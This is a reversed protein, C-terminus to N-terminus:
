EVEDSEMRDRNSFSDRRSECYKYLLANYKENLSDIFTLITEDKTFVLDNILKYSHIVTTHDYPEGIERLAINSYNSRLFWQYLQRWRVIDNPKGSKKSYIYEFSKGTIEAIAQQLLPVAEYYSVRNIENLVIQNKIILELGEPTQLFGEFADNKKFKTQTWYWDAYTDCFQKLNELTM